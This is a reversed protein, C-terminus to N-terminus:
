LAFFQFDPGELWSLKLALFPPFTCLLSGPMQCWSKGWANSLNHPALSQSALSFAVSFCLLNYSALFNFFFFSNLVQFLPPFWQLCELSETPVVPPHYEVRLLWGSTSWARWHHLGTEFWNLRLNSQPWRDGETKWFLPQIRKTLLHYCGFCSCKLVYYM